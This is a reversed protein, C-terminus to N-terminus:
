KNGLYGPFAEERVEVLFVSLVMFFISKRVITMAASAPPPSQYQVAVAGVCVLKV